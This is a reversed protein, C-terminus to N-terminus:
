SFFLSAVRSRRGWWSLFFIERELFKYLGSVLLSRVSFGRGCGDWGDMLEPWPSRVAGVVGWGSWEL